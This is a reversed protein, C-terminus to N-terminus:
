RPFVHLFLRTPRLRVPRNHLPPPGDHVIGSGARIRWRGAVTGQVPWISCTAIHCTHILSKNFNWITKSLFLIIKNKTNVTVEQVPSVGDKKRRYNVQQLFMERITWCNSIRILGSGDNSLPRHRKSQVWHYSRYNSAEQRKWSLLWSCSKRFFFTNKKVKLVKVESKKVQGHVLWSCFTVQGSCCIYSESLVPLQNQWGQKKWTYKM